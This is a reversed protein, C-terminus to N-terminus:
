HRNCCRRSLPIHFSGAHLTLCRTHPLKPGCAHLEDVYETTAYLQIQARLELPTANPDLMLVKPPKPEWMDLSIDPDLDHDNEHKSEPSSRATDVPTTGGTPADVGGKEQMEQQSPAGDPYDKLDASHVEEGRQISQELRQSAQDAVEGADPKLKDAHGPQPPPDTQTPVARTYGGEAKTHM